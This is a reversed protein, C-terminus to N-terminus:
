SIAEMNFFVEAVLLDEKYDIDISSRRDMIYAYSNSDYIKSIDKFHSKDFLYIAGNLRYFQEHDQSRINDKQPIFNNMSLNDNLTNCLQVSHEVKCVSIVSKAQKQTYISFAEHIHRANRLPSTPQLFCVTNVIIQDNEEIYEVAHKVVDSSTANDGSLNEPRIFPVEAGINKAIDAIDHSDTSVIVKDFLASDLAAEITWAILPKGNLLTINKDPFRKSGGRAPIIAVNISM